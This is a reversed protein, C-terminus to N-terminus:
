QDALSASISVKFLARFSLHIFKFGNKDSITLKIKIAIIKFLISLKKNKPTWLPDSLHQGYASRAEPLGPSPLFFILFM